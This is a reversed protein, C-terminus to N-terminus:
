LRLVQPLGETGGRAWGIAVALQNSNLPQIDTIQRFCSSSNCFCKNHVLNLVILMVSM